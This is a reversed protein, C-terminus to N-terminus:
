EYEAFNDCEFIVPPPTMIRDMIINNDGKHDEAFNIFARFHPFLNVQKLVNNYSLGTRTLQFLQKNGYGNLKHEAFIRNRKDIILESVSKKGKGKSPLYPREFRTHNHKPSPPSQQSNDNIEIIEKNEDVDMNYYPRIDNSIIIHLIHTHLKDQISLITNTPSKTTLKTYLTQDIRPEVFTQDLVLHSQCECLPITLSTSYFFNISKCEFFDYKYRRWSQRM